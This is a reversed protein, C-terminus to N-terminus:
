KSLGMELLLEKLAQGVEEDSKGAVPLQIAHTICPRTSGSRAATVLLNQDDFEIAILAM